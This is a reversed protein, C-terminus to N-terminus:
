TVRPKGDVKDGLLIGSGEEGGGKFAILLHTYTLGTRGIKKATHRSIMNQQRVLVHLSLERQGTEVAHRCVVASEWSYNHAHLQNTSVEATQLVKLLAEVNGEADHANYQARIYTRSLAALSYGQSYLDPCAKKM